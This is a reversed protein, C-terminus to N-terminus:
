CYWSGFYEGPHVIEHHLHSKASEIELSRISRTITTEQATTEHVFQPYQHRLLPYLWMASEQLIIRQDIDPSKVACPKQPQRNQQGFKLTCIGRACM